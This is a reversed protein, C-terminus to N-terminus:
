EIGQAALWREADLAAMCGTGAATVAQRYVHDAVDGAAFVGEVNTHTSGPRVLKLYGKDDTELVGKFLETNPTHGIAMFLGQCPFDREAGTKVNRLRVGTIMQDGLVDVVVSDWVPAMKGEQVLRFFREQMAKSARLENRRHVLYVKRAFKTLYSGEEIASDGGGVVVLDKGRYIPLAGDCVACASVGGGSKALRQENELNLWNARAGTAIIVAHAQATEDASKITFPRRKLDVSVVDDRIFRAGCHEAQDRFSKMLAPGMVGQPFGPYNEVETTFMLQGGPILGGASYGEFCLPQLSARAAYIAATLGAPGSGIIVVKEVAM